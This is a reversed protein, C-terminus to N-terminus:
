LRSGGRGARYTSVNRAHRDSALDSPFPRISLIWQNTKRSEENLNRQNEQIKAWLCRMQKMIKEWHEKAAGCLTQSGWAGSLELVAFSDPEKEVEEFMKKTERHIGCMQENPSLFQWLSAKRAISVLNKLLINTKFDEQQSLERCTPIKAEEMRRQTRSRSQAPM